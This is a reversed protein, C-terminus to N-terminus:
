FKISTSVPRGIEDVGNIKINCNLKAGLLYDRFGKKIGAIDIKIISSGACIKVPNLATSFSDKSGHPVKWICFNIMKAFRNNKRVTIDASSLTVAVGNTETVKVRLIRGSESLVSGVIKACRSLRRMEKIKSDPYKVLIFCIYKKSRNQIHSARTINKEVDLVIGSAVRSFNDQIQMRPEKPSGSIKNTYSHNYKANISGLIQRIVDSIASLRAKQLDSCPASVGAYHDVPVRNIFNPVQFANGISCIILVQLLAWAILKCSNVSRDKSIRSYSRLRKKPKLKV